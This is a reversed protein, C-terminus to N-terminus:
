EIKFYIPMSFWVNVAKGNQKGPKWGKWNKVVRIAEEDCGFGIGRLISVDSIDGNNNVLFKVFVKGEIHKTLAEKPYEIHKKLYASIAVQGGPYEPMQEVYTFIIKNNSGTNHEVIKEDSKSNQALSKNPLILMTVLFFLISTKM